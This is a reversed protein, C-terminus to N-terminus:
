VSNGRGLADTSRLQYTLKCARISLHQIGAGFVGLRILKSHTSHYM